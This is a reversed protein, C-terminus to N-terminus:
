AIVSGGQCVYYLSRHSYLASHLAAETILTTDSCFSLTQVILGSMKLEATELPRRTAPGTETVSSESHQETSLFGRPGIFVM